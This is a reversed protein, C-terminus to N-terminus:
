AFAHAARLRPQGDRTFRHQRADNANKAIGDLRNHHDRGFGLIQRRKRLGNSDHAVFQWTSSRKL